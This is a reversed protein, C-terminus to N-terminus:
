SQDQNAEWLCSLDRPSYVVVTKCGQEVGMLDFSGPPVDAHARWLPHEAPLPKLETGTFLRRVLAKFGEDFEKRGCCAEALIFGGQDVYEKLLREENANVEPAHHGNFYLIPSQLLDATVDLLDNETEIRARKPDFIQWALPQRKFLERSAYAVLNRADYRDNNWDVGPGHALKSVMIPTRGKSLFLLAFSTSVVPWSDHLETKKWSGDLANQAEVLYECGERYWDHNGLFRQGSLRGTREIGYLNYYTAGRLETRYRQAIWGHAKALPKNEEYVGCNDASGDPR